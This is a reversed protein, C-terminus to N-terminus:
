LIDLVSIYLGFKIDSIHPAKFRKIKSSKFFLLLDTQPPLFDDNHSGVFFVM